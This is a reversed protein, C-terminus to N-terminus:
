STIIANLGWSKVQTVLGSRTPTLRSVLNDSKYATMRVKALAALKAKVSTSPNIVEAEPLFVCAVGPDPFFDACGM